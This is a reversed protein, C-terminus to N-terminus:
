FNIEIDTNRYKKLNDNVVGVGTIALEYIAVTMINIASTIVTILRYTYALEVCLKIVCIINTSKNWM